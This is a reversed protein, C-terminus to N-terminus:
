YSNLHVAVGYLRRTCSVHEESTSGSIGKDLGLCLGVAGSTKPNKKCRRHLLPFCCCALAGAAGGWRSRRRLAAAGESAGGGVDGGGCGGGAVRRRRDGEEAGGELEGGGEGTLGERRREREM